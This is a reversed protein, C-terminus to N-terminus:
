LHHHWGQSSDLDKETLLSKATEGGEISGDDRVTALEEEFMYTFSRISGEDSYVSLVDASSSHAVEYIAETTSYEYSESSDPSLFDSM